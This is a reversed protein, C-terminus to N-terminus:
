FLECFYFRQDRMVIEGKSIKLSQKFIPGDYVFSHYEGNEGCVDVGPPLGNFFLQDMQRGVFSRGLSHSDVCCTIAKFGSSVFVEALSNTNKGWLPFLGQMGVKALQKERYERIDSLFIDGFVVRNVGLSKYKELIELMRNEYIDNSAVPPIWVKIQNLGINKIQKDLLAERVGHMSIRQYDETLTTLLAMVEYDGSQMLQHLALCSDKGGSFGFLVKEPM